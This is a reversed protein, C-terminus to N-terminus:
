IWVRCIASPHAIDQMPPLVGPPRPCALLHTFNCMLTLRAAALAGLLGAGSVAGLSLLMSGAGQWGSLMSAPMWRTPAAAPQQEQQQEALQPGVPEAEAATAAAAAPPAASGQQQQSTSAAEERTAACSAHQWNNSPRLRLAPLPRFSPALQAHRRQGPSSCAIAGSAITALMPMGHKGSPPLLRAPLGGVLSAPLWHIHGALCAAIIQAPALCNHSSLSAASV